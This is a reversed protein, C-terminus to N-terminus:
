EIISKIKKLLISKTFYGEITGILNKNKYVLISPINDIDYFEIIETDTINVTKFALNQFIANSENSISKFYENYKSDINDFKLLMINNNNSYNIITDLKNEIIENDNTDKSSKM